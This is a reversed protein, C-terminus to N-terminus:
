NSMYLSTNENSGGLHGEDEIIDSSYILICYSTAILSIMDDNKIDLVYKFHNHMEHNHMQHYM